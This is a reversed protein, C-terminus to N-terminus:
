ITATKQDALNLRRQRRERGLKRVWWVSLVLGVIRASIGVMIGLGHAILYSSDQSPQPNEYTQNVAALNMLAFLVVLTWAVITRPLLWPKVKIPNQPKEKRTGKLGQVFWKVCFFLIVVWAAYGIVTAAPM